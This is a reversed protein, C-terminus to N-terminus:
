RRCVIIITQDNEREICGSIFIITTIIIILFSENKKM